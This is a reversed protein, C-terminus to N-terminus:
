GHVDQVNDMRVRKFDTIRDRARLLYAMIVNEAFTYNLKVITYSGWLKVTSHGVMLMSTPNRCVHM